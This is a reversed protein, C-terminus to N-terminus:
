LSSSAVVFTGFSDIKSSITKKEQDVEGGLDAWTNKNQDWFLIKLTTNLPIQSLQITLKAQGFLSDSAGVSLPGATVRLGSPLSSPLSNNEQSITWTTKKFGGKSVEITFKDALEIKGGALDFKQLHWDSFMEYINEKTEINAKWKGFEVNRDYKCVNKSCTGFIHERQYFDKGQGPVVQGIIGQTIGETLYTIEYDIKSSEPIKTVKITFAKGDSRPSLFFYPRLMTEPAEKKPEIVKPAPSRASRIANFAFFVGIGLVLLVVLILIRLNKKPM